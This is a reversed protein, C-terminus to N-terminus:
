DEEIFPISYDIKTRGTKCYYRIVREKNSERNVLAKSITGDLGKCQEQIIEEEPIALWENHIDKKYLGMKEEKMLRSRPRWYKRIREEAIYRPKIGDRFSKFAGRILRRIYGSSPIFKLVGTIHITPLRPDDMYARLYRLYTDIVLEVSEPKDGIENALDEIDNSLHYL